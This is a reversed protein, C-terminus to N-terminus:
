PENSVLICIPMQSDHLNSDTSSIIQFQM